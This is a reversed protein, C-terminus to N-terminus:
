FSRQIGACLTYLTECGGDVGLILDADFRISWTDTLHYFSGIGAKPGAQGRDHGIWGKAGFTFFPDFREYGWWHWLVDASLGAFNELAAAETEVAWFEAFYYGARVAGGGLRRMSSGGEPLTMVAGAGAYWRDFECEEAKLPVATLAVILPWLLRKM